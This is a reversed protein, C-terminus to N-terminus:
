INTDKIGGKGEASLMKNVDYEVLGKGYGYVAIREPSWKPFLRGILNNPINAKERALTFAALINEPTPETRLRDAIDGPIHKGIISILNEVGGGANLAIYQNKDYYMKKTKLSSSVFPIIGGILAVVAIIKTTLITRYGHHKVYGRVRDANIRKYGHQKYEMNLLNLLSSFAAKEAKYSGSAVSYLTAQAKLMPLEFRHIMYPSRLTFWGLIAFIVIAGIIVFINDKQHGEQGRM